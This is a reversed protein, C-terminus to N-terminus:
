LKSGFFWHGDRCSRRSVWFASLFDSTFKEFMVTFIQLILQSMASSDQNKRKHLFVAFVTQIKFGLFSHCLSCIFHAYIELYNRKPFFILCGHSIVSKQRRFVKRLLVSICSQSCNLYVLRKIKMPDGCAHVM